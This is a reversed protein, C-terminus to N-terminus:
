TYYVYVHPPSRRSTSYTGPQLLPLTHRRRRRRRTYMALSIYFDALHDVIACGSGGQVQLAINCIRESHFQHDQEDPLQCIIYCSLTPVRACGYAPKQKILAFSYSAQHDSFGFQLNEHSSYRKRGGQALRPCSPCLFFTSCTDITLPLRRAKFAYRYSFFPNFVNNLVIRAM